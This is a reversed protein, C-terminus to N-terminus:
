FTHSIHVMNRNKFECDSNQSMAQQLSHGIPSQSDTVGGEHTLFPYLCSVSSFPGTSLFLEPISGLLDREANKEQRLVEHM